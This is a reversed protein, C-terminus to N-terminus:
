LEGMVRVALGEAKAARLLRETADLVFEIRERPREESHDHLLVVGGGDERVREAAFGPSPLEAFTDGSDITWWAVPARRRRLAARTLTTQKGHPPRFRGNAPVWPALAEYGMRIDELAAWPAVKWANRHLLTHCGIEHGADAVADLVQPAVRARRGLAFFTAKADHRGLLELLQPTIAPGPGDDYTLSLVGARRCRVRLAAIERQRAAYTLAEAAAVAGGLVVAGGAASAM